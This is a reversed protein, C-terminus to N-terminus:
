GEGGVSVLARNDNAVRSAPGNGLGNFAPLGQPFDKLTKEGVLECLPLGYVHCIAVGDRLSLREIGGREVRSLWGETKGIREAYEALSAGATRRIRRLRETGHMRQM